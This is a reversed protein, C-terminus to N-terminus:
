SLMRRLTNSRCERPVFGLDAAHRLFLRLGQQEPPGLTFHLNDRLYSLCTAVDLGAGPAAAAAIHELHALGADRMQCLVPAIRRTDVGERAAWVAFVFPVGM